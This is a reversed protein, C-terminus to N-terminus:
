SWWGRVFNIGGPMWKWRQDSIFQKDELSLIHFGVWSIIKHHTKRPSQSCVHPLLAQRGRREAEGLRTEAFGEIILDKWKRWCGNRFM